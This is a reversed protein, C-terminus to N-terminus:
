LEFALVDGSSLALIIKGGSYGILTIQSRRKCQYIENEIIGGGEDGNTLNELGLRFVRAHTVDDVLYLSLDVFCSLTYNIKFNPNINVNSFLDGRLSFLSLTHNANLTYLRRNSIKIKMIEVSQPQKFWHEVEGDVKRAYITGGRTAVYLINMGDGDRQHSCMDNVGRRKKGLRPFLRKEFLEGKRKSKSIKQITGDLFGVFLSDFATHMSLCGGCAVRMKELITWQNSPNKQYFTVMGSSCGTCLLFRDDYQYVEMCKLPRQQKIIVEEAANPQM